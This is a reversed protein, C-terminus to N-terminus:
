LANSSYSGWWTGMPLSPFHCPWKAVSMGNRFAQWLKPLGALGLGAGSSRLTALTALSIGAYTEDREREKRREEKEGTEGTDRTKKGERAGGGRRGREYERCTCAYL